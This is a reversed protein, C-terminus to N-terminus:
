YISVPDRGAAIAVERAQQRRTENFEEEMQRRVSMSNERLAQSTKDRAKEDGVDYWFEGNPEKMLFRGPPDLKRIEDVISQAILRKERKFRATLYVRKKREVFTRYQENGAHQFYSNLSSLTLHISSADVFRSIIRLFMYKPSVSNITGGRGCLVDNNHPHKTRTQESPPLLPAKPPSSSMPAM